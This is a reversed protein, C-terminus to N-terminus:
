FPFLQMSPSFYLRRPESITMEKERLHSGQRREFWCEESVLIHWKEDRYSHGADQLHLYVACIDKRERSESLADKLHRGQKSLPEAPIVMNVWGKQHPAKRGGHASLRHPHHKRRPMPDQHCRTQARTSPLLWVRFISGCTHLDSEIYQTVKKGKRSWYSWYMSSIPNYFWFWPNIIPRNLLSESHVSPCLSDTFSVSANANTRWICSTTLEQTIKTSRTKKYIHFCVSLWLWKCVVSQRGGGVSIVKMCGVMLVLYARM